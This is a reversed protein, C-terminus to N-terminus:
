WRCVEEELRTHTNEEYDAAIRDMTGTNFTERRIM